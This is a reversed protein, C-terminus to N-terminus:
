NKVPLSIEPNFFLDTFPIVVTITNRKKPVSDFSIKGALAHAREIMGRIGFSQPKMRDAVSIGKGNDTIKLQVHSRSTTLEISVKSAEAHRAINTLAEQAIRFLATSQAPQLQIEPATSEFHCPIGSQRTFEGAQWELAAVIGIDLISPRMNSSIRHAAEITRDVLQDLYEAKESLEPRNKPLRKTLLALAMKIATLNGGLDDHIERSIQTREREKVEEIHASLEALRTRSLKIEMEDQKNQTINTMIGEWQMSGDNLQFPTALLNIWRIEKISDVWIRGEWNWSKMYIASDAMSEIYSDRDQPLILSLFLDPNAYLQNQTIGLLHKCGNSLYPFSISGDNKQIIQYVLWPTDNESQLDPIKFANSAHQADADEKKRPIQPQGVAIITPIQNIKCKQLRFLIPYATGNKRVFVASFGLPEKNRTRKNLSHLCHELQTESSSAALTSFPLGRLEDFPRQLNACASKSAHLIRSTQGDIIYIEDFSTQLLANFWQSDRM